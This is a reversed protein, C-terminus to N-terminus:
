VISTNGANYYISHTWPASRILVSPSIETLWVKFMRCVVMLDMILFTFIIACDHSQRSSVMLWLDNFPYAPIKNSFCGLPCSYSQFLQLSRYSLHSFSNGPCGYGQCEFFRPKHFLPLILTMVWTSKM